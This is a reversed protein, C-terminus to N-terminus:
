PVFTPAVLTANDDQLRETLVVEASLSSDPQPVCDREQLNIEIQQPDTDLTFIFRTQAKM